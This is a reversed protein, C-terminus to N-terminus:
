KIAVGKVRLGITVRAIGQQNTSAASYSTIEVDMMSVTYIVDKLNAAYLRIYGQEKKIGGAGTLFWQNWAAGDIASLEVTFNQLQATGPKITLGSIKMVRSCPLSGLSLAFNSSLTANKTRVPISIKAAENRVSVGAARLKISAKAPTTITADWAPLNIEEVVVNEYLRSQAVQNSTNLTVFSCVLGREKSSVQLYQLLAHSAQDNNMPLDFSATHQMRGSEDLKDTFSFNNIFATNNELQLLMSVQNFMTNKQAFSNICTLLAITMVALFPRRKNM